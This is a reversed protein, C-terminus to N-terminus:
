EFRNKVQPLLRKTLQESRVIKLKHQRIVKKNKLFVLILPTDFDESRWIMTETSGKALKLLAKTLMTGKQQSIAGYM